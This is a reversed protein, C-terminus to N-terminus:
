GPRCVGRPHGRGGLALWQCISVWVPLTSAPFIHLCEPCRVKMKVKKGPFVNQNVGVGSSVLAKRASFRASCQPCIEAESM